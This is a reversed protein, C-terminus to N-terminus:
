SAKTEMKITWYGNYAYGNSGVLCADSKRFGYAEFAKMREIAYIPVKSIIERCDFLEFAPPVVLPLIERIVEAKENGSGLDLRLVGVDRFADEAKRHFLEITGVAKSVSKDIITWRVFWQDRYSYLWFDIAQEMREKTPYYFNDGECNDSNFFPLANKDSYVALLDNADGKEVFRLLWRDNEFKPCSEYVNEM